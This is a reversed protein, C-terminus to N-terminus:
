PNRRIISINETVRFAIDAAGPNGKVTGSIAVLVNGAPLDFQSGFLVAHQLSTGGVGGNDNGAFGDANLISRADGNRLYSLATGNTGANTFYDFDGIPTGGDIDVDNGSVIVHAPANSAYAVGDVSVAVNVNSLRSTGDANRLSFSYKTVGDKVLVSEGAVIGNINVKALGRNDAAALYWGTLPAITLDAIPAVQFNWNYTVTKYGTGEWQTTLQYTSSTLGSSPGGDAFDVWDGTQGNGSKIHVAVADASIGPSFANATVQATTPATGGGSTKWGVLVGGVTITGGGGPASADVATNTYFDVPALAGTPTGFGNINDDGLWAVMPDFAYTDNGRIVYQGSSKIDMMLGQATASKGGKQAYLPGGPMLGASVTMLAVALLSRTFLSM